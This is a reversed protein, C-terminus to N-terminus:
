SSPFCACCWSSKKWKANRFGHPEGPARVSGLLWIWGPLRAAPPSLQRVSPLLCAMPCCGTRILHGSCLTARRFKLVTRRILAVSHINLLTRENEGLGWIQVKVWACGGRCCCCWRVLLAEDEDSLRVGKRRERWAAVTVNWVRTIPSHLFTRLYCTFHRNLDITYM